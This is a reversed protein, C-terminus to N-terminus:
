GGILGQSLCMRKLPRIGPCIQSVAIQLSGRELVRLSLRGNAREFKIWFIGADHDRLADVAEEAIVLADTGREQVPLVLLTVTSNKTIVHTQPLRYLNDGEYTYYREGCNVSVCNDAM